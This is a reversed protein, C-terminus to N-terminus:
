SGAKPAAAPDVAVTSSLSVRESRFWSSGPQTFLLFFAYATLADEAGFLWAVVNNVVDGWYPRLRGVVVGIM